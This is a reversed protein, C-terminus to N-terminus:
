PPTGILTSHFPTVDSSKSENLHVLVKISQNILLIEKGFMKWDYSLFCSHGYNFELCLEIKAM